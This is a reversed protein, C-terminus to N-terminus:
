VNLIGQYLMERGAGSWYTLDQEIFFWRLLKLLLEYELGVIPLNSTYLLSNNYNKCNFIVEIANLLNNWEQISLSQKKSILDNFIFEHAPPRDNGNGWLFQNEIYIVFDCGKNLRGPRELYIRDGNNLTEVFYRYKTAIKESSWIQLLFQRISSRTTYNEINYLNVDLSNDNRIM